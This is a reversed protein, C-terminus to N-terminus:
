LARNFQLIPTEDDVEDRDIVMSSGENRWGILRALGSCTSAQFFPEASESDIELSHWCSEFQLCLIQPQEIEELYKSFICLSGFDVWSKHRVERGDSSQAQNM